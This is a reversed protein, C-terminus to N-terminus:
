MEFPQENPYQARDIEHVMRRFSRAEMEFSHLVGRCHACAFMLVIADSQQKVEELNGYGAGERFYLEKVRGIKHERKPSQLNHALENRLSNIAALLEWEGVNDHRLCFARALMMKNYFSLRAETIHQRHFAFQDLIGGLSEEILLHGKLLAHAVDDVESMEGQFKAIANALDDSM